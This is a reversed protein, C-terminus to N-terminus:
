DKFIFSFQYEIIMQLLYVLEFSNIKTKPWYISPHTNHSGWTVDDMLNVICNEKCSNSLLMTSILDLDDHM